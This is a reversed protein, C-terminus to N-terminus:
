TNLKENAAQMIDQFQIGRVIEGIKRPEPPDHLHEILQLQLWHVDHWNGMKYGAKEFAGIMKFGLAKHFNLSAENPVSIAAYVNFYGQLRLMSFLTEYLVKAIGKGQAEPYLYISSEVSWQYAKRQGYKGAYAYGIIKQDQLCVLWPYDATYLKIRQTYEDIEPAEYEFSIITNQVYPKYINLADRADDETILRISYKDM